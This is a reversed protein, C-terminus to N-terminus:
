SGLTKTIQLLAPAILVVMLSPLIFLVLPFLMKVPAKQAREEAAQRRRARMEHALNRMITGISVGLSEGQTVSRVFSRVSPTDARSLMNEMSEELGIGFRQEQVALLLEDGLPGKTRGACQRLANAFGSGAEMMIVILDILDPMAREIDALRASARRHVVTLPVSWGCYALLATDLLPGAIVPLPDTSLGILAAATAALARYGILARPGVTYIGAAILERRLADEHASGARTSLWGGVVEALGRSAPTDDSAGLAADPGVYGYAEIQRLRADAQLRGVAFARLAAVVALAGLLLSLIALLMM